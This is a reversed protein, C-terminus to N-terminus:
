RRLAIYLVSASLATIPAAASDVAWEVLARAVLGLSVSAIGAVISIVAVALFVLVLVGFVIWGNGRVLERSRGFAAFV